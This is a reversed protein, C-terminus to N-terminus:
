EFEFILQIGSNIQFFQGDNKFLQVSFQSTSVPNGQIFITNEVESSNDYQINQGRNATNLIIFSFSTDYRQSQAIQMNPIEKVNILIVQPTNIKPTETTTYSSAAQLLFTSQTPSLTFGLIQALAANFQLSFSASASFNIRFTLQSFKVVFSSLVTTGLTQIQAILSPIDYVGIPLTLTTGNLLFVNNSSNILYDDYPIVANRLRIYKKAEINQSFNVYFDSYTQGNTGRSTDIILRRPKKAILSM